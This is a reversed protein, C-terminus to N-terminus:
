KIYNLIEKQRNEIMIINKDITEDISKDLHYILKMMQNYSFTNGIENYHDAWIQSTQRHKYQRDLFYKLHTTHTVVKKGKENKSVYVYGNFHDINWTFDNKNEKRLEKLDLMQNLSSNLMQLAKIQKNM